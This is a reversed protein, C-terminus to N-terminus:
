EDEDISQAVSGIWVGSLLVLVAFIAQLFHLHILMNGIAVGWVIVLLKALVIVFKDGFSEAADKRHESHPCNPACTWQGYRYSGVHPEWETM